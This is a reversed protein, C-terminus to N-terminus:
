RCLNILSLSNTLVVLFRVNSYVAFSVARHVALAEAMLASSVHSFAETMIPLTRVAEGSFIGGIGCGRTTADWAADVNCVLMGPQFTPPPCSSRTM